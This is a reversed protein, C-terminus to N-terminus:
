KKEKQPQPKQTDPGFPSPNDFPPEDETTGPGVVQVKMGKKIDYPIQFPKGKPWDRKVEASWLVVGPPPPPPGVTLIVTSGLPVSTGAVPIQSGIVGSTGSQVKAVLGVAALAATAAEVTKGVVDPVNVDPPPPLPGASVWFWDVINAGAKYTCWRYGDTGWEKGWQNQLLWSGGDKNDDWGVCQIEHDISRGLSTITSEGNGFQGGADLAINLVGYNYM